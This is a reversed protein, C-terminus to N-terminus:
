NIVSASGMSVDWGLWPLVSVWPVGAPTLGGRLVM